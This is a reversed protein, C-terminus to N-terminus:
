KFQRFGRAPDLQIASYGGHYGGAIMMQVTDNSSTALRAEYGYGAWSGAGAIHNSGNQPLLVYDGSQYLNGITTLRPRIM